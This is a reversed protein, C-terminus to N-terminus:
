LSLQLRTPLRCQRRVQQDGCGMPCTGYQKGHEDGIQLDVGYYALPIELDKAPSSNRTKVVGPLEICQEIHSM